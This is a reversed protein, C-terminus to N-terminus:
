VCWVLQTPEGTRGFVIANQGFSRALEVAGERDIGFVLVSEEPEWKAEPDETTGPLFKLGKTNLIEILENQRRENEEAPLPESGPNWATMFAWSAAGAASSLDDMDTSNTDIALTVDGGDTRVLYKTSRYFRDLEERQKEDM